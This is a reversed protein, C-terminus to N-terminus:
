VIKNIEEYFTWSKTPRITIQFPNGDYIIIGLIVPLDLLSLDEYNYIRMLRSRRYDIINILILKCIEVM